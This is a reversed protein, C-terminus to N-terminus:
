GLCDLLTAFSCLDETARNGFFFGLYVFAHVQAM